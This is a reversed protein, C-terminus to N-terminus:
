PFFPAFMTYNTKDESTVLQFVPALNKLWDSFAAIGITYNNSVNM